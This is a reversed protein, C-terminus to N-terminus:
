FPFRKKVGNQVKSGWPGKSGFGKFFTPSRAFYCSFMLLVVTGKSMQNPAAAIMRDTRDGGVRNLFMKSSAWSPGWRWMEGSDQSFGRAVVRLGVFVQFGM